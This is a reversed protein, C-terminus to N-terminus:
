IKSLLALRKYAKSIKNKLSEYTYSYKREIAHYKLLHIYRDMLIDVDNNKNDLRNIFAIVSQETSYKKEIAEIIKKDIEAIRDIVVDLVCADGAGGDVRTKSYDVAKLSVMDLELEKKLANLRDVEQKVNKYSELFKKVEYRNTYIM